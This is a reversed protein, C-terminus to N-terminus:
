VLDAQSWDEEHILSMALLHLDKPRCSKCLCSGRHDDSVCELFEAEAEGGLQYSALPSAARSTLELEGVKLISEEV